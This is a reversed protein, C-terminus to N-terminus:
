SDSCTARHGMGNVAAAGPGKTLVCRHDKPNASPPPSCRLRIELLTPETCLDCQLRVMAVQYDWEPTTNVSLLSSIREWIALAESLLRIM